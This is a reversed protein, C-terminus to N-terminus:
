SAAVTVPLTSTSLAAPVRPNFRFVCKFGFVGNPTGSASCLMARLEMHPYQREKQPQSLQRVVKGM